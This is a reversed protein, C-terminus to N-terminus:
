SCIFALRSVDCEYSIPIYLLRLAYAHVACFGCPAFSVLFCSNSRVCGTSDQIEYHLLSALIDYRFRAQAAGTTKANLRVRTDSGTRGLVNRVATCVFSTLPIPPSFPPKYVSWDGCIKKKEHKM